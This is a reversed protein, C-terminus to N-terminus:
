KVVEAILLHQYATLHQGHVEFDDKLWFKMSSYPVKHKPRQEEDKEHLQLRLRFRLM